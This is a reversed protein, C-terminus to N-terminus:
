PHLWAQDARGGDNPQALGLWDHLEDSPTTGQRRALLCALQAAYECRIAKVLVARVAPAPIFQKSYSWANAM